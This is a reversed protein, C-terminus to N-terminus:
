IIATPNITLGLVHKQGAPRAPIVTQIPQIINSTQQAVQKSSTCASFAIVAILMLSFVKKM